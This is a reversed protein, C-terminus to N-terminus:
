THPSISQPWGTDITPIKVRLNPLDYKRYSPPPTDPRDLNNTNEFDCKLLKYFGPAGDDQLAYIPGHINTADPRITQTQSSWVNCDSQTFDMTIYCSIHLEVVYM